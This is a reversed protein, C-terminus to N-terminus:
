KSFDPSLYVGGNRMMLNKIRNFNGGFMWDNTGQFRSGNRGHLYIVVAKAKGYSLTGDALLAAVLLPVLFIRALTLVNPLNM